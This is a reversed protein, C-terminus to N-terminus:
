VRERCSARGIQEFRITWDYTSLVDKYHNVVNDLSVGTVSYTKGETDIGNIPDVNSSLPLGTDLSNILEANPKVFETSADKEHIFWVYVVIFIIALVLFIIGPMNSQALKHQNHQM